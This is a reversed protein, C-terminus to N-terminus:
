RRVAATTAGSAYAGDRDHNIIEVEPHQKFWNARRDAARNTVLDVVRRHELDV